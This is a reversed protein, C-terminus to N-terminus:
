PFFCVVWCFTFIVGSIFSLSQSSFLGEEQIDFSM